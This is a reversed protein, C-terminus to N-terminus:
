NQCIKSFRGGQEGCRLIKRELRGACSKSWGPRKGAILRIAPIHKVLHQIDDILSRFPARAPQLAQDAIEEKAARRRQDIERGEIGHEVMHQGPKIGDRQAIDEAIKDRSFERDHRIKNGIVAKREIFKGARVAWPNLAAQTELHGGEDTRQKCEQKLHGETGKGMHFGDEGLSGCSQQDQDVIEREMVDKSVPMDFLGSLYDIDILINYSSISFASRANEM